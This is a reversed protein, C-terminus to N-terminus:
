ALVDFNSMFVPLIMLAFAAGFRKSGFSSQRIVDLTNVLALFLFAEDTFKRKYGLAAHFVVHLSSVFLSFQDLTLQAVLRIIVFAIFGMDFMDM